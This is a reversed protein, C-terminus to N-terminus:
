APLTLCAARPGAKGAEGPTTHTHEAHLILSRPPRASDFNWGHAATATAAGKPDTTFDLWIENGPNAYVPNGSTPSVPDPHNQYHPGAKDPVGTCPATHLHAGYARAPILGATTLRVTTGYGTRTITLTATAGAPVVAQDYTVAQAATRWPRFTGETTGRPDTAAANASPAPPTKPPTADLTSTCGTIM